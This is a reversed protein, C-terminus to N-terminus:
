HVPAPTQVAPAPAQASPLREASILTVRTKIVGATEHPFVIMFPMQGDPRIKKNSNDSGEQRSLKKLIEEESLNTLEEGTLINGAYSIHEGLVLSKAGLMEGKILIRSVTYDAQNVAIGEVVTIPGLIKNNVLRRRIDKFIVLQNIVDNSFQAPARIEPAPAPVPSPQEHGSPTSAPASPLAEKVSPAPAGVSPVQASPAPAAVPQAATQPGVCQIEGIDTIAEANEPFTISFECKGGEFDATARYTGPLITDGGSKIRKAIARCSLNDFAAAKEDSPLSNEMYFEGGKGTPFTLSKEGVKMFIEIFELPAKKGEKQTFLKGTVARTQKADFYVCSGSWLSPSISKNVDSISYDIPINKTDLTIKNQGYSALTPVVMTGFSGTKGIEQGNNLVTAGPVEKNLAVIGFSDSVPRSVGFFGGAYVLSGAASLNYIESGDGGTNKINADLSYIGYRANYQVYPNFSTTTNATTESRNVSARYGLGEGVPIDKQIQITESNVDGSGASAQVSGRIGKALDFNLGVFCNYTTDDMTRTSSGTAFLSISKYLTRSYNLSINRTNVGKFTETEAYNISFSGLPNLLLGMGLNMALQTSDQTQLPNGVTAYDRSYGRLLLNTSFSGLQFSHQLSLAGGEKNDTASSGAISLGFQGIRPVAFSASIGGNYTGDSGEARAGINLNNTVGYRHFASFAPKGYENSEVGYQERLFGANYSYEHLGKRLMQSSFYALYSIKQVNGFPDKLLVEVNHSGTYSYLNKLDFSGPAIAQKGILVGDLYIEAQTPFIVSGRLDLVPQTIFFPDLRYVKSFGIGGMNVTSGLDGSNAYEDGLVFWQLDGRREYTASSQLRVFSDSTETKTYLSDSTFFVDGTRFGAKNTVSFSQFGNDRDYAYSLGYNLFASTERPYYINKAAAKLSFLDAATKGSATTKGIIAVTLKKEDFTYTVDLLASIPVFQEDGRIIIIRDEAYQLMLTKADAVPIFLNHKDDLEFFFDGKSQTNVIVNVVIQTTVKPSSPVAPGKKANEKGSSSVTSSFAPAAANEGAALAPNILFPNLLFIALAFYFVCERLSIKLRMKWVRRKPSILSATVAIDAETVANCKESIKV